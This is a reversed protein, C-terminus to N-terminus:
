IMKYATNIFCYATNQNVYFLGQQKPVKSPKKIKLRKM